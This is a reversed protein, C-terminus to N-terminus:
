DDEGGNFHSNAYDQIRVRASELHNTLATDLRDQSQEQLAAFIQEHDAHMAALDSATYRPVFYETIAQIHTQHYLELMRPPGAIKILREHLSYNLKLYDAIISQWSGGNANVLEQMQWHVQSFYDIDELVTHNFLCRGVYMEYSSRITFNEMVKEVNCEAVYTGRRPLVKVLGEVELQKLAIRLPTRSVDLISELETLDLREGSKFDESIIRDRLINYVSKSKNPSDIPELTM